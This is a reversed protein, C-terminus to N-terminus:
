IYASRYRNYINGGSLLIAAGVQGEVFFHNSLYQKVGVKVPLFSAGSQDIGYLNLAKRDRGPIFSFLLRGISYSAYPFRYTIRIQVLSGTHSEGSWSRYTGRRVWLWFTRWQCTLNVIFREFSHQINPCFQGM